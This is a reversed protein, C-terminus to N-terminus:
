DGGKMFTLNLGAMTGKNAEVNCQTLIVKEDALLEVDKLRLSLLHSKVKAGCAEVLLDNLAEVREFVVSCSISLQSKGPLARMSNEGRRQVAQFENGYNLTANIVKLDMGDLNLCLDNGIYIGSGRLLYIQLQIQAYEETNFHFRGDAASFQELSRYDLNACIPADMNTILFKDGSEAFRGVLQERVKVIVDDFAPKLRLPLLITIMCTSQELDIGSIPLYTGQPSSVLCQVIEKDSSTEVKDLYQIDRYLRFRFPADCLKAGENLIEELEIIVEQM